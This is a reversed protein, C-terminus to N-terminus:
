GRGGAAELATLLRASLADQRDWMTQRREDTDHDWGLLHLFSHALMLCLSQDEALNPHLRRTEELCILVDGLPLLSGAMMPDPAFRGEEEWLPFSLVDTAEDCGRHERNVSRMEDPSLLSVSFEVAEYGAINPFVDLLEESLVPEFASWGAIPVPSQPEGDDPSDIRLELKM